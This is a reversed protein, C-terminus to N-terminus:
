YEFLVRLKLFSIDSTESARAMNLLWSVVLIKFQITKLPLCFLILYCVESTVFVVRFQNITCINAIGHAGNKKMNASKRRLESM